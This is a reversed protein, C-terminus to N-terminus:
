ASSATLKSLPVFVKVDLTYGAVEKGDISMHDYTPLRGSYVRLLPSIDAALDYLNQFKSALEKDKPCMLASAGTKQNVVYALRTVVEVWGRQLAEERALRDAEWRTKAAITKTFKSKCGYNQRGVRDACSCRVTVKYKEVIADASIM